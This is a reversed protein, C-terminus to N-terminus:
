EHPRKNIFLLLPRIKGNLYCSPYTNSSVVVKKKEKPKNKPKSFSVESDSDDAVDNWETDSNYVIHDNKVSKDSDISGECSCMEESRICIDEEDSM